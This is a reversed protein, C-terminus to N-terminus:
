ARHPDVRQPRIRGRLYDESLLRRMTGVLRDCEARGFVLPPKIKIVNHDPGDTSLLVGSERARDALYSAAGADPIRRAPDSVLEVGVFLGRGRVDGLLPHEAQLARLEELMVAGTELARGQLGEDEMVDLVALGVACSVPNGGFTNFYEMGPDFAEALARTTVVAGMPHGNGIPKGMTVIDPVVGDLEFAWFRSGVRGFGTQVEDAIYLAGAARALAAAARLWGEPPVIQGGCSLISEALFAAAPLGSTELSAAADRVDDAYAPGANPDDGRIEGRYADPMRVVRVHEARGSGGPGYFKYPSADILSTLHGHYAGDVVVIGRRGTASRAIRLALDNAESGSNVLICTDLPAPLTATLREAYRVLNGHLYRTNTTLLEMQRAAADVVRPHAHGVHNVNNVCDLYRRGREDFMWTGIGRVMHVPRSYSLGLSPAIRARRRAALREDPEERYRADVAFGIPPEPCLAAWAEAESPLAVGPFDGDTRGLRDAIVQFHVHPPWGGNRDESGIWAFTEGRAVPKGPALAGLVGPDLHGYLTWFEPRDGDLGHHLIVTPGYDLPHANDAVAAVRGAFPARVGTGPPGFLDVGLHVTRQFEPEREGAEFQETGYCLRPELYRGIGISAGADDLIRRIAESWRAPDRLGAADVGGVSLDLMAVPGAAALVPAPDAGGSRLWASVAAGRPSPERRCAARIRAAALRPHVADLRELLDWAPRESVTLYPDDPERSSRVASLAVSVCLRLAVLHPLADLEHEDLAMGADYGAGVAAIVGVPDPQDMAAYAAAIAPEAARWSRIMDGFDILGPVPVPGDLAILVNHDNADGHIVGLALRDWDGAGEKARRLMRDFLGRRPPDVAGAHREAVAIGRRLDWDSARDLADHRTSKLALGVVALGEGLDRCLALTRPRFDVLPKGEVWETCAAEFAAGGPAEIRVVTRGDSAPVSGPVRPAGTRAAVADVAAQRVSLPLHDRGVQSIKMAVVTGDATELRFNRDLDGVLETARAELGWADRALLGAREADFPARQRTAPRAAGEAEDSESM